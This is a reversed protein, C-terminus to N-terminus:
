QTNEQRLERNKEVMQVKWATLNEVKEQQDRLERRAQLFIMMEPTRVVHRGAGAAGGHRPGAGRREGPQRQLTKSNCHQVTSYRSHKSPENQSLYSLIFTENSGTKIYLVM